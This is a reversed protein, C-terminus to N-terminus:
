RQLADLAAAAVAYGIHYGICHAVGMDAIGNHADLKGNDIWCSNGVISAHATQQQITTTLSVLQLPIHGLQSAM